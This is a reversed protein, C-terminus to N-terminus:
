NAQAETIFNELSTLKFLPLKKKWLEPPDLAFLWFMQNEESTREKAPLQSGKWRIRVHDDM